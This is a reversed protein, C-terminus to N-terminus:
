RTPSIVPAATSSGGNYVRPASLLSKMAEEYKGSSQSWVELARAIEPHQKLFEEVRTDLTRKPTDM